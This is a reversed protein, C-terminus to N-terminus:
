AGETELYEHIQEIFAQIGEDSAEFFIHRRPTPEPAREELIEWQAQPLEVGVEALSWETVPKSGAKMIDMVQLMRPEGIDPLVSIVCPFALEYEEVTEDLERTVRVGGETQEIGIVANVHPIGMYEGLQIGLQHAFLDASGDGCIILDVGGIKEIAAALVAATQRTEADTLADDMVFYVEDVSRAAVNKRMTSDHVKTDGACLAVLSNGAQKNVLQEAGELANLDYTSVIHAASSYDLKDDSDIRIAVDDYVSKFCVLTKM